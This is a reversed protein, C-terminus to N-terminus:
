IKPNLPNPHFHNTGPQRCKEKGDPSNNYSGSPFFTFSDVWNSITEAQDLGKAEPTVLM